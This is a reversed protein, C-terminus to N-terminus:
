QLTWLASSHVGKMKDVNFVTGDPVDDYIKSHKLTKIVKLTYRYWKEDSDDRLVEVQAFWDDEKYIKM